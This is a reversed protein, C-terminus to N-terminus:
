PRTKFIVSTSRLMWIFKCLLLVYIPWNGLGLRSAWLLLFLNAKNESAKRPAWRQQEKAGVRCLLCDTLSLSLSLTFAISDCSLSMTRPSFLRCVTSVHDMMMQDCLRRWFFFFLFSLSFFIVSTCGFCVTMLKCSADGCGCASGLSIGKDNSCRLRMEDWLPIGVAMIEAGFGVQVCIPSSSRSSSGGIRVSVCLWASRYVSSSFVSSM